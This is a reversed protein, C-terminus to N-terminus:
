IGTKLKLFIVPMNPCALRLSQEICDTLKHKWTSPQIFDFIERRLRAQFYSFRFGFLRRRRHRRDHDDEQEEDDEEEDHEDDQVPVGFDGQWSHPVLTIWSSFFSLLLLFIDPDSILILFTKTSFRTSRM